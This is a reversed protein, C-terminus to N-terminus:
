YVEFDKVSVVRVFKGYRVASSIRVLVALFFRFAAYTAANREDDKAPPETM